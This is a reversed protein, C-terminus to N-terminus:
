RLLDDTLARQVADVENFPGKSTGLRLATTMYVKGGARLLLVQVEDGNERVIHYATAPNKAHEGEEPRTVVHAKGTVNETAYLARAVTNLNVDDSRTDVNGVHVEELKLTAAYDSRVLWIVGERSNDTSLDLWHPPVRYQFQKFGPVPSQAASTASQRSSNCGWVLLSSWLVVLCWSAQFPDRGGM